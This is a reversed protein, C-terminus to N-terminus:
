NMCILTINCEKICRTMFCKSHHTGTTSLYCINYNKYYSCIITYHRLSKFSNSMSLICLNRNNNSYVLNIFWFCIWITNLSLKRFLSKSRFFPTSICLVNMNRSFLFHTNIIKKISNKKLCFHKFKLSCKITTCFTLNEFGANILATTYNRRYNNLATSEFQSIRKNSTNIRTTYTGHKIVASASDLFCTRRSWNFNQTHFFHWVCTIWELNCFVIFFCTCNCCLTLFKFTVFSSFSNLLCSKICQELINFRMFYLFKLNDDLSVKLSRCFSELSRKFLKRCTFDAYIYNM